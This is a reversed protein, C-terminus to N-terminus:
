KQQGWESMHNSFQASCKTGTADLPAVHRDERGSFVLTHTGGKGACPSKVLLLRRFWGHHPHLSLPMYWVLFIESSSNRWPNFHSGLMTVIRTEENLCAGQLGSPRLCGLNYAPAGTLKSHNRNLWVFWSTSLTCSSTSLKTPTEM